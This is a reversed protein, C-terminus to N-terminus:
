GAGGEGGVLDTRQQAGVEADVTVERGEVALAILVGLHPRRAPLEGELDHVGGFRRTRHRELGREQAVYCRRRRIQRQWAHHRGHVAGVDGHGLPGRPLAVREPEDRPQGAHWKRLDVARRGYQRVHAACEPPEVDGELAEPM